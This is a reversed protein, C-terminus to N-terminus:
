FWSRYRSPSGDGGSSGVAHRVLSETFAMQDRDTDGVRYWELMTFEPNHRPGRELGRVAKTFQYIAEAGAILLRKMAFEPSTQLYRLPQGEGVPVAVPDLWLDVCVDTSLLPTEVEWYGQEIFFQRLAHTIQSRARLTAIAATPLDLARDSM